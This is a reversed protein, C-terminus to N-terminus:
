NAAWRVPRISNGLSRWTYCWGLDTSHFEISHSTVNSNYEYPVSSWYLGIGINYLTTGSGHAAAPLFISNDAYPGRGRVLHGNVGNLMTWTYDCKNFLDSLEQITPMRWAGGWHVHAADHEPALVYTGDKLVVWGESQLTAIDKGWTSITSNTPVFNFGFTTGSPRHGVTDGWWFYLGYDWPNEAGINRDAWYPGGEWLQGGRPAPADEAVTVRVVMNGWQGEGLDSRADWVLAYSGNAAVTLDDTETGDKVVRVHSVDQVTGAEGDVAAVAFKLGTAEGTIGTVKCTIDVLGNWPYRQQVTVDTVTAGQEAWAPSIGWLILLGLWVLVGAVGVRANSKKM